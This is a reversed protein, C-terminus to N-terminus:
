KEEVSYRSAANYSPWEWSPAGQSVMFRALFLDFNLTLVQPRDNNNIRYLYNADGKEIAELSIALYHDWASDIPLFGSYVYYLNEKLEGAVGEAM